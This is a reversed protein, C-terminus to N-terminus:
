GRFMANTRQLGGHLAVYPLGVTACYLPNQYHQKTTNFCV